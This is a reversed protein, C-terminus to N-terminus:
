LTKEPQKGLDVYIRLAMYAIVVLLAVGSIALIDDFFWHYHHGTLGIAHIFVSIGFIWLVTKKTKDPTSTFLFIMGIAFFLLTQGNIHTHALGVNYRFDTEEDNKYENSNTSVINSTTTHEGQQLYAPLHESDVTGQEVYFILVAWLCVCLMLTTFIGVFLKAPPSFNSLQVQM